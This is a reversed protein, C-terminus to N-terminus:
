AAVEKLSSINYGRIELVELLEADTAEMKWMDRIDLDTVKNNRVYITGEYDGYYSIEGDLKYGMPELIRVLDTITNEINAGPEDEIVIELEGPNINEFGYGQLSKNYVVNRQIDEVAERTLAPCVAISGNNMINM